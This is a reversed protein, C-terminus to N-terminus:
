HLSSNDHDGGANVQFVSGKSVTLRTWRLGFNFVETQELLDYQILMNLAPKISIHPPEGIVVLEDLSRGVSTCWEVAHNPDAAFWDLLAQVNASLKPHSILM